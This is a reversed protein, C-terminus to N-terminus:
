GAALTGRSAGPSTRGPAEGNGVRISGPRYPCRGESQASNMTCKASIRRSRGMGAAATRSVRVRRQGSVQACQEVLESMSLSSCSASINTRKTSVKVSASRGSTSSSVPPSGSSCGSSTAVSVRFAWATPVRTPTIEPINKARSPRM